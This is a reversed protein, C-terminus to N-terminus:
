VPRIATLAPSPSMVRGCIRASAACFSTCRCVAGSGSRAGDKSVSTGPSRLRSRCGRLRDVTWPTKDAVLGTVALGWDEPVMRVEWIPYAANFRFPRTIASAPYTEALRQPNFLAAQVRDNFRLMAWLTADVGSHTSLDCGTLLALSGLSLGKRLLGRRSLKAIEPAIEAARVSPVVRPRKIM